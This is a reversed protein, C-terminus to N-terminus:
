QRWKLFVAIPHPAREEGGFYPWLMHKYKCKIKTSRPVVHITNNFTVQYSGEECKVIVANDEYLKSYGLLTSLRTGDIYVYAYVRFRDNQPDYNWGVRFSNKHHNLTGDAFGVLKNIAEQNAPDDSIYRATDNFYFQFKSSGRTFPKWSAMSRHWGQPIVICDWDEKWRDSNM